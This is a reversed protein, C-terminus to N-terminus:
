EELLDSFREEWADYMKAASISTRQYDPISTDDVVTRESPDNSLAWESDFWLALLAAVVRDDHLGNRARGATSLFSDPTCDAMEDVLWQSRIVAMKRQLHNVGRSWLDQRTSRTSFWGYKGGQWKQVIGESVLWPPLHSYGYKSILERQTMWGTGPYVEICMLAEEEETSGKYLKGLFNCVGALDIADIPAAYEAVQTTPLRGYGRRWVSVVANDTKADDKSRLARNWGSLGMTPDCGIIYEHKLSPEEFIHLLGRPDISDPDHLELGYSGIRYTSLSM